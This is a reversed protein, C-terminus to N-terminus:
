NVKYVAGPHSSRLKHQENLHTVVELGDGVEVYDLAIFTPLFASRKNCELVRAMIRKFSNVENYGDSFPMLGNKWGSLSYFHNLCFLKKTGAEDRPHEPKPNVAHNRMECHPYRNLNYQTEQYESVPMFAPNNQDDFVVLRQNNKRMEGLTPWGGDKPKNYVYRDLGLERMMEIVLADSARSIHNELFLTIIERPNQDLLSKIDALTERFPKLRLSLTSAKSMRTVLCRTVDSDAQEATFQSYGNPEHCLVIDNHSRYIDVMFGRVGLKFQSVINHTQQRYTWGDEENAHANHATLYAAGDYPTDDTYGALVAELMGARTNPCVPFSPQTAYPAWVGMSVSSSTQIKHSPALPCTPSIKQHYVAFQQASEPMVQFNQNDYPQAVVASAMLMFQFSSLMINKM